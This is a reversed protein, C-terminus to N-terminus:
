FGRKGGEAVFVKAQGPKDPQAAFMTPMVDKRGNDKEKRQNRRIAPQDHMAEHIHTSVMPRSDSNRQQRLPWGKSFTM